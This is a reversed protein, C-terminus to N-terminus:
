EVIYWEWLTKNTSCISSLAQATLSHVAPTDGFSFTFNGDLKANPFVFKTHYIVDNDCVDRCTLDAVIKGGTSFVDASNEYKTGETSEYDYFCIIETDVAFEGAAFTLTKSAANVSFSQGKVPTAAVVLKRDQAGNRLTYVFQVEAGVTGSPKHSLAATTAGAKLAIIDYGPVILPDGATAKIGDSGTQAGIVGGVVYGNNLSLSATKNRDMAALRVGGKGTAYITESGNEISGDTVQDVMWKLEGTSPSFCTVLDISDVILKEANIAM